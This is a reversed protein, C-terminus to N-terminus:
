NDLRTPEQLEALGNQPGREGIAIYRYLAEYLLLEKSQVVVTLCYAIAFKMFFLTKIKEIKMRCGNQLQSFGCFANKTNFAWKKLCSM